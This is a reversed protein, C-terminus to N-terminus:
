TMNYVIKPIVYTRNNLIAGAINANKKNLPVLANEIIHKRVKRENVVLITSDAFSSLVIADIYNKIDACNIIVLEYTEKADKILDALISSELLIIPNFETKGAPLVSLNFDLVQIAEEFSIKKELVDTLGITDSINFVKSINSNTMRLNADIILVRFDGKHSMNIGINAIVAATGESGEADVMLFSNINKDRMLLYINESLNQFSLSYNSNQPNSYSILLKDRLKKRPISGINRINFFKELDHPSKITQDLYEFVLAFLVGIIISSVFAVIILLLKNGGRTRQAGRAQGMIKISAPGMAQIDPLIGGHLTEKLGEIYSELQVVISYKEGYKFKLEAIQQELEFIIYSRSVSNAIIVAARPNYDVVQIIFMRKSLDSPVIAMNARLNSIAENVSIGEAGEPTLGGKKQARKKRQYDILAAKFPSAYRKEYDPPIEYLRLAKVVRELVIKSTVLEQHDSISDRYIIEKYYDSEAEKVGSVSMKVAAAFKPTTLQLGIYTPIIIAIPLIIFIIKHRFIIRLFDRLTPENNIYGKM